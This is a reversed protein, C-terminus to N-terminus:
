SFGVANSGWLWWTKRVILALKLNKEKRIAKRMNFIQSFNNRPNRLYGKEYLKWLAMRMADMTKPNTTISGGTSEWRPKKASDIVSPIWVSHKAFRKTTNPAWYYWSYTEIYLEHDLNRKKMSSKNIVAQMQRSWSKSHASNM